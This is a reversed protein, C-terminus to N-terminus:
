SVRLVTRGTVEGRELRELAENAAELPLVDDIVPQVKGEEFLTLVRAMEDRLAYRSGIFEIEHLVFLDLQVRAFRGVTYGVGVVRGGRRTLQTAQHLSEDNGVTSIVLDAGLGSTCDRVLSVAEEGALAAGAAGMQKAKELKRRDIDVALTQTGAAQAIQLAQLGVGGVGLVVVTEGPKVRGRTVVARYGTGTACTAPAAQEPTIGDPVRLLRDAPVALFEEFGGPSTFGTWGKLAICLNELGMRCYTCRGCPWYHYVVVRDGTQFGTEPDAEVVEGSIEHGPVHPLKLTASYAMKGRATKLDSYCVGCALVRILVSGPQVEPDPLDILQLPATYDTVAM